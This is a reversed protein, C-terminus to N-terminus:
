VGRGGAVALPIRFVLGYVVASVVVPLVFEVRFNGPGWLGLIAASFLLPSAFAIILRGNWHPRRRVLVWGLLHLAPIVVVTPLLWPATMILWLVPNWGVHWQPSAPVRDGLLGAMLMSAVAAAPLFVILFLSLNKVLRMVPLADARETCYCRPFPGKGPM